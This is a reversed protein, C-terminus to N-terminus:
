RVKLKDKQENVKDSVSRKDGQPVSKLVKDAQEKSVIPEPVDLEIDDWGRQNLWSV